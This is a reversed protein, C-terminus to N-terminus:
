KEKEWPYINLSLGTLDLVRDVVPATREGFSQGCIEDSKQSLYIARRFTTAGQIAMAVSNECM